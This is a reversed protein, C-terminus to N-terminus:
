VKPRRRTSSSRFSHSGPAEDRGSERGGLGKAASSLQNISMEKLQNLDLRGDPTDDGTKVATKEYEEIEDELDLPIVVAEENKNNKKKNGM